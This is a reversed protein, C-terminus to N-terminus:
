VNEGVEVPSKVREAAYINTQKRNINYLGTGIDSGLMINNSM